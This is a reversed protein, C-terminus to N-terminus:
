TSGLGGWNFDLNRASSSAGFRSFKKHIEHLLEVLAEDLALYTAHIKSVLLGEDRGNYAQKSQYVVSESAKTACVHQPPSDLM